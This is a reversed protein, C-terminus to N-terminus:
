STTIVKVVGNNLKIKLLQSSTNYWMNGDVAAGPDSSLNGLWNNTAASPTTVTESLAQLELDVAEVFQKLTNITYSTRLYELSFTSVKLQGIYSDVVNLILDLTAGNSIGMNTLTSVSNNLKHYKICQADLELPCVSGSCESVPICNQGTNCNSSSFNYAGTYPTYYLTTSGCGCNSM